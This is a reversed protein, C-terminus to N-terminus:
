STVAHGLVKAQMQSAVCGLQEAESTGFTGQVRSALWEHGRVRAKTVRLTIELASTAHAGSCSVFLFGRYSIRYRAGHRTARAHLRKSANDSWLAGCAGHRCRPKFHWGASSTGPLDNSYGSSSTVKLRVNFYGELRAAALPPVSLRAVVLAPRSHRDGRAAEVAYTYSSQPSVDHDVYGTATGPLRARVDGDRTVEFGDVAGGAPMTWSLRVRFPADQETLTPQPVEAPQQSSAAPATSSGVCGSLALSATIVGALLAIWSRTSVARSSNSM